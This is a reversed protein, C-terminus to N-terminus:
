RKRDRRMIKRYIRPRKLMQMYKVPMQMRKSNTTMMMRMRKRRTRKMIFKEYFFLGAAVPIVLSLSQIIVALFIPWLFPSVLLGFIGTIVCLKKHASLWKNMEEMM